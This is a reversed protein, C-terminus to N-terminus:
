ASRRLRQNPESVERTKPTKGWADFRAMHDRLSREFEAREEPTMNDLVEELWREM